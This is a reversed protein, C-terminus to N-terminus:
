DLQASLSCPSAALIATSSSAGEEEPQQGEKHGPYARAQGAPETQAGRPDAPQDADGASKEREQPNEGPRQETRVRSPRPRPVGSGTIGVCSNSLSPGNRQQRSGTVSPAMGAQRPMAIVAPVIEPVTKKM